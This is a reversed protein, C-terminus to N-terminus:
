QQSSIVESKLESLLRDLADWAGNRDIEHSHGWVHYLSFKRKRVRDLMKKAYTYWDMSAYEARQCGAHVTTHQWTSDEQMDLSGVLTSRAYSYHQRVVDRLQDTAYGRPYCFKTVPKGLLDELMKKSQEIEWSAVGYPIKTLLAHTVGHSGIEFKQSLDLLQHKSMALWGKQTAYSEWMAPIYFTAQVDHKTLMESLRQDLVCGDDWSTELTLKPNQKM